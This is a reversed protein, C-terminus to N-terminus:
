VLLPICDVQQQPTEKGTHAAAELSDRLRAPRHRVRYHSFHPVSVRVTPPSPRRGRGPTGAVVCKVPAAASQHPQRPAPPAPSPERTPIERLSIHEFWCRHSPPLAHDGAVQRIQAVGMEVQVLEALAKGVAQPMERAAGFGLLVFRGDADASVAVCVPIGLDSTIDLFQLSRGGHRHWEIVHGIGTAEVDAPHVAPCQRRGYWWLGTADREVLELFGREIADEESAGVACGNSDAIYFPEDLGEDRFGIYACAAPILIEAGTALERAPTWAIPTDDALPPPIREYEGHIANWQDRTAYQEDSYGMLDNPYIARDRVENWSAIEVAEDGHWCVSVTEAAEGLCRILADARSFGCAAAGRGSALRAAEPLLHDADARPAAVAFWCPSGPVQIEHLDYRDELLGLLPPLVAALDRRTWRVAEGIEIWGLSHLERLAAEVPPAGFRGALARVIGGTDLREDVAAAVAAHLHDM